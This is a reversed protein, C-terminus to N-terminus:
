QDCQEVDEPRIRIGYHTADHMELSNPPLGLGLTQAFFAPSGDGNYGGFDVPHGAPVDVQYRSLPTHGPGYTLTLARKTRYRKM